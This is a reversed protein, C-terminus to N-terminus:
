SADLIAAVGYVQLDHIVLGALGVFQGDLVRPAEHELTYGWADMPTVDGLSVDLSEFSM